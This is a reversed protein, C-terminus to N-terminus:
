IIIRARWECCCGQDQGHPACTTRQLPRHSAWVQVSDHHADHCARKPYAATIFTVILFCLQLLRWMWSVCCYYIRYNPYAVTFIFYVEVLVKIVTIWSVKFPNYKFMELLNEKSVELREFAQKEKSIKKMLGEIVPYDTQSVGAGDYHMDYYFGEEIPPGYCLNGGYIREM